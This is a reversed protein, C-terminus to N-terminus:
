NLSTSPPRMRPKASSLLLTPLGFLSESLIPMSSRVKSGLKLVRILKLLRFLRVTRVLKIARLSSQETFIDPAILPLARDFPFTSLFDPFFWTRVYHKAIVSREAVFRSAGSSTDYFGTFFSRRAFRCTLSFQKALWHKAGRQREGSSWTSASSLM